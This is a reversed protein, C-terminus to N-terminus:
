SEPADAADSAARQSQDPALAAIETPPATDFAGSVYAAGAIVAVSGTTFLLAKVLTSAM